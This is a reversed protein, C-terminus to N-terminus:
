KSVGLLQISAKKSNMGSSIHQLTAAVRLLVLSSMLACAVSVIV